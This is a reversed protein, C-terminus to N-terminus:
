STVSSDGKTEPPTFANEFKVMLPQGDKGSVENIVPLIRPSMKLVMEKKYGSWRNVKKDGNMVDICAFILQMRLEKVKTEDYTFKRAM